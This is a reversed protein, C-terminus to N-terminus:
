ASDEELQELEEMQKRWRIRAKRELELYWEVEARLNQESGRWSLDGDFSKWNGYKCPGMEWNSADVSHFPLAMIAREGGFGLGHIRKPWVRAFCQGAWEIKKKGPMGVAGGIAIKPYDRALGELVDWPEGVHYTPIAPVGREWAREVNRRTGRWDGIVDLAFVEVLTPDSALLEKCTDLYKENDVEIGSAHASFAGSDMAWDRYMFQDQYSQFNELYVYSVLLAPALEEPLREVGRLGGGLTNDGPSGHASHALVEPKEKM